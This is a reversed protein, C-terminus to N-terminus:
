GELRFARMRDLRKIDAWQWFGKRGQGDADNIQLGFAFAGAQPLRPSLERWPMAAEYITVTGERRVALEAGALGHFEPGEPTLTLGLERWPESWEGGTWPLDAAFAIQINDGRWGNSGRHNNDHVDDRIRAAFCLRDDDRCLWAEGSLDDDGARDATLRVYRGGSMLGIPPVGAWDALDADVRIVRRPCPLLRAGPPVPWARPPPRTAALRPRGAPGELFLPAGDLRLRGAVQGCRGAIDTLRLPPAAADLDIVTPQTAWVVRVDREGRRFRYSHVFPETDDRGAFVAGDLQRILTACAVLAPKPAYPGHPDDPRGVLGMTGFSDDDRALYWFAKQVGHALFITWGRVLYCAQTLETIPERNGLEGPKTTYWGQETVWVPKDGGRNHRRILARLDELGAAHHEPTFCYGYPHVSIGDFSDNGARRIVREIWDLPIGITAGALVIVDPRERKIAACAHRLMEAYVEPRGDAPGRAFGGNYENWIEVAQIQRGYRRLVEVGYRAYGAFGDRTFPAAAWVPVGPVADYCRNGFTLPTLSRIHHRALESMYRDFKGPFAFRGRAPEVADWFIEDRVHKIGCAALVPVLDPNWSAGFHTMVGFPSEAVADPASPPLVALRSRTEAGATAVTLEYWGPAGAPLELPGPALLGRAVERGRMDALRWEATTGPFEVTVAVQAGAPFVNGPCGQRIRPSSSDSM